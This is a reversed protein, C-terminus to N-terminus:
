AEELQFTPEGAGGGFALVHVAPDARAVSGGHGIGVGLRGMFLDVGGQSAAVRSLQTREGRGAGVQRDEIGVTIVREHARHEAAVALRVRAEARQDLRQDLEADREVALALVALRSQAQERVGAAEIDRAHQEVGARGLAQEGPRGQKTRDRELLHPDGLRLGLLQWALLARQRDRRLRCPPM